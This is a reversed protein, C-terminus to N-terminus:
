REPREIPRVVRIHGSPEHAFREAREVQWALWNSTHGTETAATAYDTYGSALALAVRYCRGGGDLGDRRVFRAEVRRRGYASAWWFRREMEALTVSVPKVRALYVAFARAFTHGGLGGYEVTATHLRTPCPTTEPEDGYRRINYANDLRESSVRMVLGDHYLPEGTIADRPTATTAQRATAM